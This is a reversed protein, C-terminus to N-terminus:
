QDAVYLLYRLDGQDSRFVIKLQGTLSNRCTSEICALVAKASEGVLFRQGLFYDATAAYEGPMYVHFMGDTAFLVEVTNASVHWPQSFKEAPIDELYQPQNTSQLRAYHQESLAADRGNENKQRTANAQEFVRVVSEEVTLPRACSSLSLILGLLAICALWRKM